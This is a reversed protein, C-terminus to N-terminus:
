PTARVHPSPLQDRARPRRYGLAAQISSPRWKKGGRPTPVGEDNLQDAIGRLTMNAARMAAIRQVLEPRDSVAPRGKPRGGARGKALGRRTGTAIRQHEHTSLAILTAAVHRGAATSTDIDLDLAILTADADRFWAMLAGLDIISRSVRQLDSVVLGHAHGDAIRELAYRLGRRELTVGDDRDSVVEVLNWGFHECAAEVALMSERDEGARADAPVTVYGILASGPSLRSSSGRGRPAGTPAPPTNWAGDGNLTGGRALARTADLASHSVAVGSPERHRRRYAARVAVAFLLAVLGGAASVLIWTVWELGVGGVDAQAWFSVWSQGNGVILGCEEPRTSDV